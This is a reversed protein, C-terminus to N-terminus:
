NRAASLTVCAAKAESVIARLNAIETDYTGIARKVADLEAELQAITAAAETALDERGNTLAQMARAEIDALQAAIRDANRKEREAHAMVVAVARRATEVSHASDRLQQRLLPIALADTTKETQDAKAGRILTVLLNFM